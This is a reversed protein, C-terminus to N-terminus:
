RLNLDILHKELLQFLKASMNNNIEGKNMITGKKAGDFATADDKFDQILVGEVDTAFVRKAKGEHLLEKKEM